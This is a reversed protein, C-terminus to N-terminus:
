PKSDCSGTNGRSLARPHVRLQGDGRQHRRPYCSSSGIRDWFVQADMHTHGDIFGPSVVHGEADITEAGNERIRGILAIKGNSIGVDAHFAPAGSGDVISGNKIVLDYPM